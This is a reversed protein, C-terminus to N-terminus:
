KKVHEECFKQIIDLIRSDYFVAGGHACSGELEYYDVKHRAATLKEYLFRSNEVSVVPDDVSHLLLVPPLEMEESIYMACSAKKAAEENGEIRDVGLLVASPRVTMWPPLPDKACILLDTSASEAIVGSIKPLPECLRHVDFLVSMMAIHGGSSNGMLFIKDMDM